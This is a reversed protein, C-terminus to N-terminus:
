LGPAGPKFVALSRGKPSKLRDAHEVQPPAHEPPLPRESGSTFGGPATEPVLRLKGVAAPGLGSGGRRQRRGAHAIHRGARIERHARHTRELLTNM